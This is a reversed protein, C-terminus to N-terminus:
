VFRDLARLTTDAVVGYSLHGALGRAHTQWPFAAPGPTLGMVPNLGEDVVGWFATGFALGRGMEVGELRDRLAGYLAGTGIGLAWHIASGLRQRQEDDLHAGLLSAAKEAATGYATSGGRAQEERDKAESGEREYLLTTVRGMVYTAVAGAVAGKIIEVALSRQRGM